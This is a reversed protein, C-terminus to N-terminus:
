SETAPVLTFSPGGLDLTDMILTTRGGDTEEYQNVAVIILQKEGPKAAQLSERKARSLDHILYAGFTWDQLAPKLNLESRAELRVPLPQALEGVPNVFLQTVFFGTESISVGVAIHTFTDSLINERHGESDMLRQHLDDAIEEPTPPTFGDVDLCSVTEGNQLECTVPGSVALNEASSQALLTRDFAAIRDAARRGDLSEHAFFDNVGMDLSQFRAAPQLEIRIKYPALGQEAREANIKDVFSQEIAPHFQFDAPPSKLCALGDAVYAAIQPRDTGSEINCALAPGMWTFATLLLAM